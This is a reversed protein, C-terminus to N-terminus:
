QTRVFASYFTDPECGAGYLEHNLSNIQINVLTVPLRVGWHNTFQLFSFFCSFCLRRGSLVSIKLIMGKSDSLFFWKGFPALTWMGWLNQAFSQHPRAEHWHWNCPHYPGGTLPRLPTALLLRNSCTVHKFQRELFDWSRNWNGAQTSGEITAPVVQASGNLLYLKILKFDEKAEKKSRWNFSSLDGCHLIHWVSHRCHWPGRCFGACM